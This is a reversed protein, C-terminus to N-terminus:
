NLELQCPRRHHSTSRTRHVHLFINVHSCLPNSRTILSRKPCLSPSPSPITRSVAWPHIHELVSITLSNTHCVAIYWLSIPKESSELSSKLATGPRNWRRLKVSDLESPPTGNPSIQSSKSIKNRVLDVFFTVFQISFQSRMGCMTKVPGNSRCTYNVKGRMVNQNGPRPRDGNFFVVPILQM